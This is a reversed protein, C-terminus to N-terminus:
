VLPVKYSRELTKAPEKFRLILVSLFLMGYFLWITFGTFSILTGFTSGEPLVMIVSIATNFVIACVPLKETISLYSMIPPMHGNRAAALTLRGGTLCSGNAAGFSSIAVIIAMFLGFASSYKAGFSLAVADSTVIQLPTLM